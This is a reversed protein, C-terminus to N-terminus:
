KLLRKLRRLLQYINVYDSAFLLKEGKLWKGYDTMADNYSERMLSSSRILWDSMYWQYRYFRRYTKIYQRLQKKLNGRQPVKYGNAKAFAYLQPTYDYLFPGLGANVSYITYNADIYSINLDMMKDIGPQFRNNNAYREVVIVKQRHKAFLVNHCVSGTYTAVEDCKQLYWILKKLTLTEPSIIEYGNREFFEDIKNMGIEYQRSKKFKSRTFFIKHPFADKDLRLDCSIATNIIKDYILRFKSSYHTELDFSIEPVIVQKYKTPENIIEVKDAIGLLELFERYNGEISQITGIRTVFVYKEIETSDNEVFYWLRAVSDLIFHGWTPNFYGCFVVKQTREVIQKAEYAGEIRDPLSSLGVYEGDKTVVGGCDRGGVNKLPLILAENYSEVALQKKDSYGDFLKNYERAKLTRLYLVRGM